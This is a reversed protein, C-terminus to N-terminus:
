IRTATGNINLHLDDPGKAAAANEETNGYRCDMNASKINQWNALGYNLALL